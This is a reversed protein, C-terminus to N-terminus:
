SVAVELRGKVVYVDSANDFFIDNDLIGRQISYVEYNYDVTNGTTDVGRTTEIETDVASVIATNLATTATTKTANPISGVAINFNVAESQDVTGISAKATDLGHGSPLLDLADKSYWVKKTSFAM